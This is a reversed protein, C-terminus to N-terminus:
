QGGAMHRTRVKFVGDGLRVHVAAYEGGLLRKVEESIAELREDGLVMGEGFRRHVAANAPEDLALRDAGFLSGFQLLRKDAHPPALLDAIDLRSTYGHLDPPSGPRDFFRIAHRDVDPFHEVEDPLLGLGGEEHPAVVWAESSNWRDVVEVGGFVGEELLYDWAVATWRGADAVAGAEAEELEGGEPAVLLGAKAREALVTRQLLDPSWPAARGLRIPPLLLTRNLLHALTLANTLAKRQNHFGSHPTYSLYHTSRSKPSSPPPPPHPHPNVNLPRPPLSSTATATATALSADVPALTVDRDDATHTSLQHAVDEVRDEIVDQEGGTDDRNSTAGKEVVRGWAFVQGVAEEEFELVEWDGKEVAEVGMGGARLEEEVGEVRDNVDNSWMRGGAHGGLLGTEWGEIGGVHLGCGGSPLSSWAGLLLLVVIALLAALRRPATPRHAKSASLHYLTTHLPSTACPLLPSLDAESSALSPSM